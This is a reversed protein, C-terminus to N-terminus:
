PGRSHPTGPPYVTYHGPGAELDPEGRNGGLLFTILFFVCAGTVMQFTYKNVREKDMLLDHIFKKWRDGMEDTYPNGYSFNAYRQQQDQRRADHYQKQTRQKERADFDFDKYLRDYANGQRREQKKNNGYDKYEYYYYETGDKGKRKWSKGGAGKFMDGFTDFNGFGEQGTTGGYGYGQGPGSAHSRRGSSTYSSSSSSGMSRMSDYDARLRPNGLVRHAENIEKLTDPNAAKNLDPHHKKALEHYKKKIDDASATRNVQLIKYYDIAPDFDQNFRAMYRAPIMRLSRLSTLAALPSILAKLM